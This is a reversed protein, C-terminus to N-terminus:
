SSQSNRVRYSQVQECQISHMLATCHRRCIWNVDIGPASLLMQISAASERPRVHTHYGSRAAWHLPPLYGLKTPDKAACLNVDALGTALLLHIAEVYGGSAAVCLATWDHNPKSCLGQRNIYQSGGDERSLRETLEEWSPLCGRGANQQRGSLSCCYILNRSTGNVPYRIGEHITYTVPRKLNFAAFGSQKPGEASASTNQSSRQAKPADQNFAVASATQDSQNESSKLHTNAIVLLARKDMAGDVLGADVGIGKLHKKLAM